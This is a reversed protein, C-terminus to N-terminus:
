KIYSLRRADNVAGCATVFRLADVAAGDRAGLASDHGCLDM